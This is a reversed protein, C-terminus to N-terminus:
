VLTGFLQKERNAYSAPKLSYNVRNARKLKNLGSM